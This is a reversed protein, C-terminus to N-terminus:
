DNKKEMANIVVLKPNFIESAEKNTIKDLKKETDEARITWLAIMFNSALEPPLNFPESARMNSSPVIQFRM